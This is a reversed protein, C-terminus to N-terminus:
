PSTARWRSNRQPLGLRAQVTRELWDVFTGPTNQHLPLVWEERKSRATRAHQHVSTRAVGQRVVRALRTQGCYGAIGDSNVVIYM